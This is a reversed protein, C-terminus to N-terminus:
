GPKGALGLLAKPRGLGANSPIREASDRGQPICSAEPLLMDMAQEDTYTEDMYGLRRRHNASSAMLLVKGFAAPGPASRLGSHEFRKPRKWQSVIDCPSDGTVLRVHLHGPM